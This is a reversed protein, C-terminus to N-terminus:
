DLCAGLLDSLPAAEVYEMVMLVEGDDEAVDLVAVVNPHQIRSALRAEALFMERFADDALLHEHARKIAVLTESSDKSRGVYVAGMGGSALHALLKYRAGTSLEETPKLRRASGM